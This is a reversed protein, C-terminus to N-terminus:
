RRRPLLLTSIQMTKMHLWECCRFVKLVNGIKSKALVQLNPRLPRAIDRTSPLIDSLAYRALRVVVVSSSNDSEGFRRVELSVCGCGHRLFHLLAGTHM